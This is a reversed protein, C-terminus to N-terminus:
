YTWHRWSGIRGGSFSARADTRDPDYYGYVGGIRTVGLYAGARPREICRGSAFTVFNQYGTRRLTTRTVTATSDRRVKVQLLEGKTTTAIVTDAWPTSRDLSMTKVDALTSWRIVRGRVPAGGPAIEYRVLHRGALRYYYTRSATLARTSSWDGPVRRMAYRGTDDQDSLWQTWVFVRGRDDVALQKTTTGDGTWTASSQAVHRPWVSLSRQEIDWTRLYGSRMVVRYLRGASSVSYSRAACNVPIGHPPETAPAAAGALAPGPGLATTAIAAALTALRRGIM